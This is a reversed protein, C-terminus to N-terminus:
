NKPSKIYIYDFREFLKVYFLIINRPELQRNRFASKKPVFGM